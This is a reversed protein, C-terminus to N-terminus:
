HFYPDHLLEQSFWDLFLGTKMKSLRENSLILVIAPSPLVNPPLVQELELSSIVLSGTRCPLCMSGMWWMQMRERVVAAEERRRDRERCM